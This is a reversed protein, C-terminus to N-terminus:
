STMVPLFVHFTSGRDMQSEVKVSGNHAEAISKVISLGLGTGAIFRTRDDRIRYFREFILELKDQSIGIGTDSVSIRVYDQEEAASISVKGGEPTYKIANTLLNSIVEEIARKNAIIPRFDVATELTLVINKERARTQHFVAQERLLPTLDLREKELTILGSEIRSLDLLEAALDSLGKIKESVRGLLEVQKETVSGALGDQIVKVVALVSNMPSKVEHAVMSVFDSKLKDVKRMATIDHMVTITGLNRHMRDRFPVCRVALVTEESEAIEGGNFEHTIEGFEEPAMSVAEEVMGLLTENSILDSVLRGIPNEGHSGIMKLFAPNALAIRKQADTAMVGDSIHSILVGMRSKEHSIDELTRIYDFAKGVVARLDQPSFPKSIFDYAGKKMAEVAHELTAYGTIVIVLTDPHKEKVYTLVDIGRMGPLMLDLLIVDFHEAEIRKLGEFGTEAVAVELGENRLMTSCADRIRKEDDVVLIRIGYPMKEKLEETAM